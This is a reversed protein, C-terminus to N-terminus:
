SHPEQGVIKAGEQRVSRKNILFPDITVDTKTGSRTHKHLPHLSGNSFSLVLRGHWSAHCAVARKQHLGQPSNGAVTAASRWGYLVSTTDGLVPSQHMLPRMVLVSIRVANYPITM